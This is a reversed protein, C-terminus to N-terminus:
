GTPPCRLPGVTRGAGALFFEPGTTIPLIQNAQADRATCSIQNIAMTSLLNPDVALDLTTGHGSNGLSVPLIGAPVQTRLAASIEDQTPGQALLTVAQVMTPPTTTARLVPVLQDDRILFLTAGNVPGSPAPLGSIVGSPRVGCGVCALVVLGLLVGRKIM